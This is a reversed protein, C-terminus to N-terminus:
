HRSAYDARLGTVADHGANALAVCPRLYRDTSGQVSLAQAKPKMAVVQRSGGIDHQGPTPQGYEDM